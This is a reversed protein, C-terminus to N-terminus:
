RAPSTSGGYPLELEMDDGPVSKSPVSLRFSSRDQGKRGFDVDQGQVVKSRGDYPNM